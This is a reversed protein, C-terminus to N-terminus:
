SSQKKAMAAVIADEVGDLSHGGWISRGTRDFLIYTPTGLIGMTDFVKVAGYGIPWNMRDFTSVFRQLRGSQEAEPTLGIMVLGHPKFRDNLKVLDPIQDICYGCNTAWFDLLVVQGRLQDASISNNANLWGAVEMRPLERGAYENPPKPRRAQMMWLAAAAVLVLLLLPLFGGGKDHTPTVAVDIDTSNNL